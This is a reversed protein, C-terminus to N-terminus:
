LTYVLGGTKVEQQFQRDYRAEALSDTIEQKRVLNSHM